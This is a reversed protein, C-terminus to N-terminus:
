EGIEVNQTIKYSKGLVLSTTDITQYSTLEDDSILEISTIGKTLPVYVNFEFQYVFQSIQTAPGVNKIFTTDDSYNMRIKTIKADSYDMTQSISSNLRTAGTLNYIYDQLKFIFFYYPM